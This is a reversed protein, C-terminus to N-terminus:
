CGSFTVGIKGLKSAFNVGDLVTDLVTNKEWFLPSKQIIFNTPDSPAKTMGLLTASSQPKPFRIEMKWKTRAEGM